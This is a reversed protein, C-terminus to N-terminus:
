TPLEEEEGEDGSPVYDLVEDGGDGADGEDDGDFLDALDGGGGGIGDGLGGAKGVPISQSDSIGLFEALSKDGIQDLFGVWNVLEPEWDLKGLYLAAKPNSFYLKQLIVGLALKSEKGALQPDEGRYLRQVNVLNKLVSVDERALAKLEDYFDAAETLFNLVFLSEGFTAKRLSRAM